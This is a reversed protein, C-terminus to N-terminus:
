YLSGILTGNLCKANSKIQSMINRFTSCLLLMDNKMDHSLIFILDDILASSFLSRALLVIVYIYSNKLVYHIIDIHKAHLVILVVENNKFHGM